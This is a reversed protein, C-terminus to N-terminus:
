NGHKTGKLTITGGGAKTAVASSKTKKVSIKINNNKVNLRLTQRKM